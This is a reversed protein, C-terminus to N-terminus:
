WVNIFTSKIKRHINNKSKAWAWPIPDYVSIVYKGKKIFYFDKEARLPKFNKPLNELSIAPILKWDDVTVKNAILSLEMGIKRSKRSLGFLNESEANSLSLRTIKYGEIKYIDAMESRPNRTFFSWGEPVLANVSARLEYNPTLVSEPMSSVFVLWIFYLLGLVPLLYVVAKFLIKAM